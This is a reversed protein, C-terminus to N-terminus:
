KVLGDNEIASYIDNPRLGLWPDSKPTLFLESYVKETFAELDQYNSYDTLMQHIKTHFFYENFVSDKAISFTLNELFKSDKSTITQGNKLAILNQSTKDLKVESLYLKALKDWTANNAVTKFEDLNNKMHALIPAEVMVMKTIALPAAELATPPTSDLTTQPSQTQPSQAQTSINVLNNKPKNSLLTALAEQEGADSLAKILKTGAEDIANRHFTRLGSFRFAAQNKDNVNYEFKTLPEVKILWDLFAKPSNMGPLADVIRGQPDLIYHISNGTITREMKRGDGFDITMKPVPRVSKWHLIYNEHLYKSIESNSYLVVRFFRSNACSLEEDLNGLLRLSLIPKGSSKSAAKAEELDTYWYLGSQYADRQRSVSEIAQRIKQWESENTKSDLQHNKIDTSFVKILTDLGSQGAARLEAIAKARETPNNSITKKAIDELNNAKTSTILTLCLFLSLILLKIKM